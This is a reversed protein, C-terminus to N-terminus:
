KISAMTKDALESALKKNWLFAFQKIYLGLHLPNLIKVFSNNSGFALNGNTLAKWHLTFLQQIDM